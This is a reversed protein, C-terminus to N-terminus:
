AITYTRHSVSFTSHEEEVEILSGRSISGTSLSSLDLRSLAASAELSIEWREPQFIGAKDNLM